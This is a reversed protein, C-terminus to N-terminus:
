LKKESRRIKWAERLKLRTADSACRGKHWAAIKQRTKVSHTRGASALRMKALQKESPRWGRGRKNGIMRESMKLCTEISHHKGYFPNNIGTLSESMKRKCEETHRHRKGTASLKLRTELSIIKNFYGGGDINYGFGRKDSKYFKIWAQERADLMEPTTKEVVVFDFCFKGYKLFAYQLHQNEHKNHKLRSFHEWKRYKMDRSQGIYWKGNVMNRIGYIGLTNM